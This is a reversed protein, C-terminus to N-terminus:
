QGLLFEAYPVTWVAPHGVRHGIYGQEGYATGHDSTLIVLVPGRKELLNFLKPLHQDVYALAAAQTAPSDVTEGPVYHCNPQHMASVNLFLFVRQDESLKAIRQQCVEVQRETSQPNTVGLSEDWHSEHFLSPLTNGLPTLKNFFGVGGVCITHYGASAFGSVIDPTDFVFTESTTTESGLFRAAFLRPHPGPTIPTPLFGAFIAHHSAYTFNGPAHRQEWQGASLHSTINPTMGAKLADVAVDYRLTDLTVFLIDCNGVLKRANHIPANHIPANHIPANHM